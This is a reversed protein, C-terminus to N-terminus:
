KKFKKTIWMVTAYVVIAYITAIAIDVPHERMDYIFEIGVELDTKSGSDIHINKTGEFNEITQEM